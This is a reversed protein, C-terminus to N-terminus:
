RQRPPLRAQSYAVYVAVVIGIAAIVAGITGFVITLMNQYGDSSDGAATATAMAATKTSPLTITPGPM